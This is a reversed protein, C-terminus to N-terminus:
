DPFPFTLFGILLLYCGYFSLSVFPLWNPLPCKWILFTSVSRHLATACCYTFSMHHNALPYLEATSSCFRCLPVGLLMLCSDLYLLVCCRIRYLLFHVWLNQAQVLWRVILTAGMRQERGCLPNRYCKQHDFKWITNEVNNQLCSYLLPQSSLTPM